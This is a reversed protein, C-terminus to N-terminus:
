AQATAKDRAARVAAADFARWRAAVHQDPRLLYYTGPELDATVPLPVDALPVDRPAFRRNLSTDLRAQLEVQARLEDDHELSREFAKRDAEEMLGDLYRDVADSPNPSMSSEPNM